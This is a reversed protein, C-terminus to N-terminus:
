WKVTKLEAITTGDCDLNIWDAGYKSACQMLEIFMDSFRAARLADADVDGVYVFWGYPKKEWLSVPCTNNPESALGLLHSDSETIHATSADMMKMFVPTKM